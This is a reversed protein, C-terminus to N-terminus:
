VGWVNWLANNRQQLHGSSGQDEFHPGQPHELSDGVLLLNILKITIIGDTLLVVDMYTKYRKQLLVDLFLFYSIQTLLLLVM